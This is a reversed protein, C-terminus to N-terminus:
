FNLCNAVDYIFYWTLIQIWIEVKNDFDMIEGSGRTGEMNICFVM